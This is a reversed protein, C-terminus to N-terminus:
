VDYYRRAYDIVMRRTHFQRCCTELSRRMRAVWRVPVGAENRDWFESVLGDELLQYLSEADVEDQEEESRFLM